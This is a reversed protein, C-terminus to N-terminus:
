RSGCCAKYKRGSGCPCRENRGVSPTSRVLPRAPMTRREYWFDHVDVVAQVLGLAAKKAARDFARKNGTKELCNALDVIPKIMGAESSKFLPEWDDIRLWIGQFYGAAWLVAGWANITHDENGIHLELGAPNERLAHALENHWRMILTLIDQLGEIDAYFPESQGFMKPYWESPVILSPGSVVAALLGECMSFAMRGEPADDADFFDALVDFDADSLPRQLEATVSRRGRM